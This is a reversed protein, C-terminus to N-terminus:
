SRYLSSLTPGNIVSGGGALELVKDCLFNVFFVCSVQCTVCLQLIDNEKCLGFTLCFFNM